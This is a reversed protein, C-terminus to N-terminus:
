KLAPVLIVNELNMAHNYIISKIRVRLTHPGAKLEVKGVDFTKPFYGSPSSETLASITQGDVEIEYAAKAGAAYSILVEFTGPASTQFKWEPFDSVSQWNALMTTRYFHDLFARQGMESQIDALYVPLEIRGDAAAPEITWPEVEPPGALEVAVVTADPDPARQPLAVVIDKGARRFSLAKDRQVLLYAKKVGTKLGPLRIKGDRPWGMVHLYLITGKVTCRGFFPLREFVSATTGYISEGNAALWVGMRKLRDVFEAPIKGNPEPGVNLLLNGGKSVIEILQRILQSASHFETEYRNYGWGNWGMTYCAEWLRPSGDPNRVGTAPVYNEPTGFDGHGPERKFLRDNILLSPKLGLLIKEIAFARQEANSHEWEGDFWLVAPDYRTVLEKVQNTAYDMYRNFDAGRTTRDKEWDRRPLYDPHHWDMISYYFGLPVGATKCAASLMGLIDKGYKTHGIDYDTYASDFLCFGDHHKSTIIIYRVGADKALAAWEAPNFDVPNFNDAYYQYESLPIQLIQRAWEERGVMSYVGWHIFLGFKADRFWQLRDPAPAASASPPTGSAGAPSAPAPTTARIALIGIVVLIGLVGLVGLFGLITRFTPVAPTAGARNKSSKM